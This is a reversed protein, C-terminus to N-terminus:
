IARYGPYYWKILQNINEKETGKLFYKVTDFGEITKYFDNKNKFTLIEYTTMNQLTLYNKEEQQMEERIVRKIPEREPKYSIVVILLVVVFQILIILLINTM